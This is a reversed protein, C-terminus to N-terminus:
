KASEASKMFKRDKMHPSTKMPDYRVIRNKILKGAREMWKQM